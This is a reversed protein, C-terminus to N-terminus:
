SVIRHHIGSYKDKQIHQVPFYHRQLFKMIATMEVYYVM